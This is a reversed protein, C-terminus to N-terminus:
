KNNYTHLKGCVECEQTYKRYAPRDRGIYVDSTDLIKYKHLHWDGTILFRILRIM